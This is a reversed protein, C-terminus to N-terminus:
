FHFYVMLSYYSFLDFNPLAVHFKAGFNDNFSLVADASILLDTSSVSDTFDLDSDYKYKQSFDGKESQLGVNVNIGFLESVQYANGYGVRVRQYDLEATDQNETQSESFMEFDCFISQETQSFFSVDILPKAFVYAANGGYVLGDWSAWGVWNYDADSRQGVKGGLVLKGSVLPMIFDLQAFLDTCTIADVEIKGYGVAANFTPQFMSNGAFVQSQACVMCAVIASCMIIKSM